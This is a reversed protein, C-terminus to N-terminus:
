ATPQIAARRRLLHLWPASAVLLVVGTVAMRLAYASGNQPGLRLALGQGVAGLLLWLIILNRERVIHYQLTINLLAFPVMALGIKWALAGAEAFEEGYLVRFLSEGLLYLGAVGVLSVAVALGLAVALVRVVGASAAARKALLPLVINAFVLPVWLVGKGLVAAAAYVGASKSEFMSRAFPVDTSVIMWFLTYAAFNRRVDSGFVHRDVAGGARTRHLGVLAVVGTAVALGAVIGTARLGVAIMVVLVPLKVLAQTATYWSMAGFAHLGQFRGTAISDLASPLFYAGLVLVPVIGSNLRPGLLPSLLAVALGLAAALGLTSRTMRDLRRHREFPVVDGAAITRAVSAQVSTSSITIVTMAALLGALMGYEAAGLMRGSVIQFGYNAANGVVMAGIVAVGSRATLTSDGTASGGDASSGDGPSTPTALDDVRDV